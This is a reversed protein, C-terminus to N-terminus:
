GLLFNAVPFVVHRFDEAPLALVDDYTIGLMKAALASQFIMSILVSPSQDGAARSEIEAAIMDQGTIKNFDLVITDTDKGNIKIPKSLKVTEM